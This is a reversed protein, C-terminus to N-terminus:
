ERSEKDEVRSCDCRGACTGDTEATSSAEIGTGTKVSSEKTTQAGPQVTVVVTETMTVYVLTSSPTVFEQTVVINLVTGNTTITYTGPSM